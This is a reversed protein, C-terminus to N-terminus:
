GLRTMVVAGAGGPVNHIFYVHLARQNAAVELYDIGNITTADAVAQSRERNGCRYEM